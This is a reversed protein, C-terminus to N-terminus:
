HLLVPTNCLGKQHDVELMIKLVVIGQPAIPGHSGHVKIHLIGTTTPVKNAQCYVHLMSKIM